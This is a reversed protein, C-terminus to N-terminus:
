RSWESLKRSILQFYNRPAFRIFQATRDSRRVTVRDDPALQSVTQGDISLQVQRTEDGPLQLAIERQVSIVVPRHQLSHACIPALLMCELEPSIIPGGASLSYGTSGTPSAVILGDAAYRGILDDGVYADVTILRAYGGRSLVVDNLALHADGRCRAELMMRSELTYEGAALRRCSADLQELEIEALFGLHGVNVGLIPLGHIAGVQCARLLTGDGGISVIGEAGEPGVPCSAFDTGHLLPLLSAEVTVSLAAARLARLVQELLAEHGEAHMMVHVCRM